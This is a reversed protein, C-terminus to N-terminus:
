LEEESFIHRVQAVDEEMQAILAEANDFRKEPRLRKILEVELTQGYLDGAFDLIHAEVIREGHDGFTPRVGINVVGQHNATGWRVRAAYIGDAPIMMRKDVALNATPFGLEHGRRTGSVVKGKLMPYRGLLDTAESVRGERLLARINSSSIIKARHLLPELAELRFGLEQGLIRLYTADGQRDRGLAFDPGIWLEKMCLREVLSLIFDRASTRALEKTFSLVVAFDLGSESLLTLREDLTTLYRIDKDPALVNDPHADFTIVGSLFDRSQASKLLRNILYRHGLHVGDFVGISLASPKDLTIEALDYVIKM